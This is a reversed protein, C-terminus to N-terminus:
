LTRLVHRKDEVVEADVVAGEVVEEEEGVVAEQGAAWAAAAEVDVVRGVGVLGVVDEQRLVALVLALRVRAQWELVWPCVIHIAMLMFARIIAM